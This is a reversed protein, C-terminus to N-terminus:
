GFIGEIQLLGLLFLFDAMKRWCSALSWIIKNVLVKSSQGVLFCFCFMRWELNVNAGHGLCLDMGM